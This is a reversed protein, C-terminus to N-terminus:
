GQVDMYDDSGGLWKFSTGQEGVKLAAAVVGILGACAMLPRLRGGFRTFKYVAGLALGATATGGFTKAGPIKQILNYIKDGAPGTATGAVNAMVIATGVLKPITVGARGGGKHHRRRHKAKHHRAPHRRAPRRAPSASPVVVIATSRGGGSSKRRRGGGGSSRNRTATGVRGGGKKFQGKRAM